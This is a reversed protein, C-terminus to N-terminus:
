LYLFSLNLTKTCISVRNVNYSGTADKSDNASQDNTFAVQIEGCIDGLFEVTVNVQNAGEDM